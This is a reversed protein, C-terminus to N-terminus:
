GATQKKSVRWRFACCLRAVARAMELGGYGLALTPTPNPKLRCALYSDVLLPQVPKKQLTTNRIPIGLLSSKLSLSNFSRSHAVSHALGHAVSHAFSHYSGLSHALSHAIFSVRTSAVAAPPLVGRGRDAPKM